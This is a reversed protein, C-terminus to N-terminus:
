VESLARRAADELSQAIEAPRPSAGAAEAERLEVFRVRSASSTVLAAYASTADPAGIVLTLLVSARAKHVLLGVGPQFPMLEGYPREIGGEAFIGLVGGAELHRLGARVAASDRGNRDVPIIELWDWLPQLLPTMMERMMMWRIFFPCCAQILIPDVGSAHNSVVIVAEGRREAAHALTALERRECRLGHVLRAYAGLALMALGSVVDGRVDRALVARALVVLGLWVLLSVMIWTALM